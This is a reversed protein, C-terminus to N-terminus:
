VLRVIELLLTFRGGNNSVPTGDPYVLKIDIDKLTLPENTYTDVRNNVMNLAYNVQDNLVMRWYGMNGNAVRIDTGLARSQIFLYPYVGSLKVPFPFSWRYRGDHGTGDGGVVTTVVPFELTPNLTVSIAEGFTPTNILGLTYALTANRCVISRNSPNDGSARVPYEILLKGSTNYFVSWGPGMEKLLQQEFWSALVDVTYLGEEFLIDTTTTPLMVDNFTSSFDGNGVYVVLNALNGTSDKINAVNYDMAVQVLDTKIVKNIPVPLRLIFDTTSVSDAARNDSSVLIYEKKQRGPHIDMDLMSLSYISSHFVNLSGTRKAM